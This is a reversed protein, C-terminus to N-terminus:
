TFSSERGDFYIRWKQLSYFSDLIISQLFNIIWAWQHSAWNLELFGQSFIFKM